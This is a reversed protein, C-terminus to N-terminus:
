HIALKLLSKLTKVSLNTTLILSPFFCSFFMMVTLVDSLSQINDIKVLQLGSLYLGIAAILLLVAQKLTDTKM